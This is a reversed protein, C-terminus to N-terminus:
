KKESAIRDRLQKARQEILVADKEKGRRRLILVYDDLYQIFLPQDGEIDNEGIAIAAEMLPSAESVKGNVFVMMAKQYHFLSWNERLEKPDIKESATQAREWWQNAEQLAGQSRAITTLELLADLMDSPDAPQSENIISKLIKKAAEFHGLRREVIALQYRSYNEPDAAEPHQDLLTTARTLHLRAQEFELQYYNALGIRYLVYSLDGLLSPTLKEYITQAIKFSAIANRYQGRALDLNGLSQWVRGTELSESGHAKKEVALALRLVEDAKSFEKSNRFWQALDRLIGGLVENPQTRALDAQVLRILEQYFRASEDHKKLQNATFWQWVLTTSQNNLNPEEKNSEAAFAKKFNNQALEFRKLGYYSRGLQFYDDRLSEGVLWPATKLRPELRAIVQEFLSAAEEYRDHNALFNALAERGLIDWMDVPGSETMQLLNRYSREADKPRNWNAYLDGLRKHFAFIYLNQKGWSEIPRNLQDKYLTETDIFRGANEYLSGLKFVAEAAVKTELKEEDALSMVQKYLKEAETVDNREAYLDGTTELLSASEIASERESGPLEIEVPGTTTTFTGKQKESKHRNAFGVTQVLLASVEPSRLLHSVVTSEWSSTRLQQLLSLVGNADRDNLFESWERLKDKFAEPAIKNEPLGLFINVLTDYQRLMGVNNADKTLSSRFAEARRRANARKNAVIDAFINVIEESGEGLIEAQVKAGVAQLRRIYLEAQPQNGEMIEYVTMAFLSGLIVENLDGGETQTDLIESFLYKGRILNGVNINAMAAAAMLDINATSTAALAKEYLVRAGASDNTREKVIAQAWFVQADSVRDETEATKLFREADDFEEEKIAQLAKVYADANSPITKGLEKMAAEPDQVELSRLIGLAIRPQTNLNLAHRHDYAMWNKSPQGFLQPEMLQPVGRDRVRELLKTGIYAQLENYFMIGDHDGDVEDWASGLGELLFYTFASMEGGNPLPMSYSPQYDASSALITTDKAEKLSLGTTEAGQGSYCSDLIISLDGKYSGGRAAKVIDSLSLGQYNGFQKQGYLQLWLDTKELDTSAHGSYYIVVVATKPMSRVKGLASIVNERTAQEDELIDLKEYGAATLAADVRQADVKTFALDNEVGATKGAAVILFYKQRKKWYLDAVDLEGMDGTKSARARDSAVSQQVSVSEGSTAATTRSDHGKDRGARRPGTEKPLSGTVNLVQYWLPDVAKIEKEVGSSRFRIRLHAKSDCQLKQNAQLGDGLKIPRPKAGAKDTVICAGRLESVTAAFRDAGRNDTEQQGQGSLTAFLILVVVRLIQNM